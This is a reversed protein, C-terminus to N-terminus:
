LGSQIRSDRHHDRIIRADFVAPKELRYILISNGINAIPLIDRLALYDQQAKAGVYLGQLYTVSVAVHCPFRLPQPPPGFPYAGSGTPNGAFGDDRPLNIYHIGYYAPNARGFYGLYIDQDGANDRQWQALAPLDQGWDVNSDVLLRWGNHRRGFTEELVSSGANHNIMAAVARAPENFFTLYNPWTWLANWGLWAALMTIMWRTRLEALGRAALLFLFPYIPLLHRLGLNVRSTLAFGLYVAIPVLLFWDDFVLKWRRRILLAMAIGIALLVPVPTKCLFVVPFFYWFGETSHRGAIFGGGSSTRHYTSLLGYTYAEPLLRAKHAFLFARPLFGLRTAGIQEATPQVIGERAMAKRKISDMMAAVPFRGPENSAGAQWRFGYCAWILIWSVALVVTAALFAGRWRERMTLLSRTQPWTVPWPEQRIARAGFLTIMAPLLALASFKTLFATGFLAGALLLNRLSLNQCVRWLGYVAAAMAATVAVDNTTLQGHAILNPDFLWLAAAVIGTAFGGLKRGWAFVLASGALWWLAMMRRGARLLADADNGSAYLTDHGFAYVLDIHMLELSKTEDPPLALKWDQQATESLKVDGLLWPLSAWLRALPPHDSELRFDGYRWHTWGSPLHAPEDFTACKQTLSTLSIAAAVAALVLWLLWPRSEAPLLM